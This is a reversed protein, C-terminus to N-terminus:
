CSIFFRLEIFQVFVPTSSMKGNKNQKSSMSVEQLRSLNDPLQELALLLLM